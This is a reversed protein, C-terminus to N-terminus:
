MNVRSRATLWLRVQTFSRFLIVHDLRFNDANHFLIHLHGRHNLWNSDALASDSGAQLWQSREEQPRHGMDSRQNSLPDQLYCLPIHDLSSTVPWYLLRDQREGGGDMQREGWLLKLGKRSYLVLTINKYFLTITM